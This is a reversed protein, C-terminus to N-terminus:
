EYDQTKHRKANTLHKTTTIKQLDLESFEM